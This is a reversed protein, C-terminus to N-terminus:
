GRFCNQFIMTFWLFIYFLFNITNSELHTSKCLSCIIHYAKIYKKITKSRHKEEYSYFHLLVYWIIYKSHLDVWKFGLAIQNKIKHNKQSKSYNKLVAKSTLKVPKSFNLSSISWKMAQPIINYVRWLQPAKIKQISSRTCLRRCANLYCLDFTTRNFM